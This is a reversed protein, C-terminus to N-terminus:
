YASFGGQKTKVLKIGKDIPMITDASNFIYFGATNADKFTDSAIELTYRRGDFAM